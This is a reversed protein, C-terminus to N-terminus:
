EGEEGMVGRVSGFDILAVGHEAHTYSYPNLPDPPTHYRSTPLTYIFTPHYQYMVNAPKVDRCRVYVFMCARVAIHLCYAHYPM